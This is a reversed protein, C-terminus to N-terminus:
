NTKRLIVAAQFDHHARHAIDVIEFWKGWRQHIYDSDVFVNCNHEITDPNSTFVRRGPPMPEGPRYAESFEPHRQLRKLLGGQSPLMQWTEESHITLLAYAGDAMVRHVEALWGTEYADIHTFVSLGVCFTVSGDSLPFYPYPSVKVARVAPGFHQEVFEVHNVNIDAITVKASEDALAVHRAFRGSAGGFDLVHRFSVNPVLRQVMRLDEVGTLWYVLHHNECYGERDITAPIPVTDHKLSALTAPEDLLERLRPYVVELQDPQRYLEAAIGVTPALERRTEFWSPAHSSTASHNNRRGKRILQSLKSM